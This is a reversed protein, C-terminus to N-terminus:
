SAEFGYKLLQTRMHLSLKKNKLSVKKLDKMGEVNRKTKNYERTLAQTRNMNDGFVQTNM